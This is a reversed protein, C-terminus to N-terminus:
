LCFAYRKCAIVRLNAFHSNISESSLKPCKPCIHRFLAFVGVCIRGYVSAGRCYIAVAPASQRKM